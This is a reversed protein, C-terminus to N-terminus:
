GSRQQHFRQALDALMYDSGAPSILTIGCPLGDPRISAPVAIATLDALLNVAFNTHTASAGTPRSRSLLV